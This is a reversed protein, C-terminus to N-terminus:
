RRNGWFWALQARITYRPAPSVGVAFGTKLELHRSPALILEPQLIMQTGGHITDTSAVFEVSPMFRRRAVWVLAHAQELFAFRPTSGAIATDWAVNSRLLLGPAARWEALVMPMLQTQNGVVASDGGPVELRGSVSIAYRGTPSGALLYLLAASFQGGALVSSGNSESVRLLPIQLVAEFGKGLGVELRSIPLAQSTVPTAPDVPSVFDLKLSVTGAPNPVAARTLIPEAFQAAAIGCTLLAVIWSYM